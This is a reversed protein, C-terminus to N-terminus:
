YYSMPNKQQQNIYFIISFFLPRKGMKPWGKAKMGRMKMKKKLKVQSLIVSRAQANVCYTLSRLSDAVTRMKLWSHVQRHCFGKKSRLLVMQARSFALEFNFLVESERCISWPKHQQYWFSAANSTLHASLEFKTLFNSVLGGISPAGQSGLTSQETHRCLSVCPVACLM